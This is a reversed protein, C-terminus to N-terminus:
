STESSREAAEAARAAMEGFRESLHSSRTTAGFGTSRRRRLQGSAVEDAANSLALVPRRSGGRCTGPSRRRRRAIGGVFVRAAAALRLHALQQNLELRDAERVFSRASFRIASSSRSTRSRTTSHHRGAPTFEFKVSSAGPWSGRSTSISRPLQTFAPRRAPSSDIGARRVYFIRDGSARELEHSDPPHRRRAQHLDPRTGPRTQSSASRRNRSRRRPMASSVGVAVATSVLGALAIAVLFLAPLRFRLSRFM